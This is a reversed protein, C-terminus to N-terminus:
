DVGLLIKIADWTPGAADKIEKVLGFAKVGFKVQELIKAFRAPDPNNKKLEVQANTVQDALDETKPTKALIAKLTELIKIQKQRDEPTSGMVVSQTVTPNNEQILTIPPMAPIKLEKKAFSKVVDELFSQRLGQWELKDKLMERQFQLFHIRTRMAVVLEHHQREPLVIPLEELHEDKEVSRIYDSLDKQVSPSTISQKKDSFSFKFGFKGVLSVDVSIAVDYGRVRAFDEFGKLLDHFGAKHPDPMDIFAYASDAKSERTTNLYETLQQIQQQLKAMFERDREREREMRIKESYERESRMRDGSDTIFGKTRDKVSESKHKQDQEDIVNSLRMDELMVQCLEAVRDCKSAYETVREIQRLDEIYHSDTGFIKSILMRTRMALAHFKEFDGSARLHHATANITDILGYGQNRDIPM